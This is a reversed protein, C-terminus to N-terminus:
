FRLRVGTSITEQHDDRGTQASASAFIDLGSPLRYAVGGAATGVLETRGAGVAVLGLGNGAYGALATARQGELQYRAGLSVFPRFPADSADSRALTLGADAFGSVHRNEAVTLVFPSAGTERVAERSTRIYTM